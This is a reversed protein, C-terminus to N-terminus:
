SKKKQTGMKLKWCGFLAKIWTSYIWTVLVFTSRLGLASPHISPNASHDMAQVVIELSRESALRRGGQRRKIVFVFVHHVHVHHVHHHHVQVHHVHVHHLHVHHVSDVPCPCPRCPCPPCPCPPHPCSSGFITPWKWINPFNVLSWRASRDLSRPRTLMEKQFTPSERSESPLFLNKGKSGRCWRIGRWNGAKAWSRKM